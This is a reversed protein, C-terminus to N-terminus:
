CIKFDRKYTGSYEYLPRTKEFRTFSEGQSYGLVMLAELAESGFQRLTRHHQFVQM